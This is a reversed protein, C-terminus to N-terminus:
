PSVMLKNQSALTPLDLDFNQKMLELEGNQQISIYIYYLMYLIYLIYYIFRRIECGGGPRLADNLMM